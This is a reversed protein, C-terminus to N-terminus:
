PDGREIAGTACATPLDGDAGGEEALLARAADCGELQATLDASIRVLESRRHSSSDELAELALARAEALRAEAVLLQVHLAQIERREVATPRLTLALDLAEIAIHSSRGRESLARARGLLGAATNPLCTHAQAATLIVEAGGRCTVSVQGRAVDVRTGLADRRVDFATGVV